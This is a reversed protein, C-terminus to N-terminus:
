LSLTNSYTHSHVEVSQDKKSSTSRKASALNKACFFEVFYWFFVVFPPWRIKGYNKTVNQDGLGTEYTPASNQLRSFEVKQDKTWAQIFNLSQIKRWILAVKSKQCSIKLHLCYLVSFVNTVSRHNDCCLSSEIKFKINKRWIIMNETWSITKIYKRSDM